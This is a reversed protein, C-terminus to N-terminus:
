KSKLKEVTQFLVKELVRVDEPSPCHSLLVRNLTTEINVRRLSLDFGLAELWDHIARQPHELRGEPLPISDAPPLIDREFEVLTMHIALLVAHSLNFSSAPGNAPLRAIFNMPRLEVLSLGDDETGFHLQLATNPNWVSHAPEREFRKLLEAYESVRKGEGDRASFAIRVGQGYDKLFDELSNHITAARIIDGGHTAGQLVVHQVDPSAWDCRPAIIHLKTLGFNGMARACMGINRPYIPRHLVVLTRNQIM